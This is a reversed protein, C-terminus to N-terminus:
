DKYLNSLFSSMLPYRIAEDSIVVIPGMGIQGIYLLVRKMWLHLWKRTPIVMNIEGRRGVIKYDPDVAELYKPTSSTSSGHHGLKIVDAKQGNWIGTYVRRKKKERRTIFIQNEMSNLKLVSFLWKITLVGLQSDPALIEVTVDDITITVGAKATRIRLDEVDITYTLEM